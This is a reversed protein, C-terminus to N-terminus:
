DIRDALGAQINRGNPDVKDAVLNTVWLSPWLLDPLTLIIQWIRWPYRYSKLGLTPRAMAWATPWCNEVPAAQTQDWTLDHPIQPPCLPVPAHKRRSSRNGRGIRMGGVPEYDDDIMRPQFLLGVTASTDLPSLRVGGLSVLFFVLGLTWNINWLQRQRYTSFSKV